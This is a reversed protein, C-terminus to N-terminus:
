LVDRPPIGTFILEPTGIPFSLCLSNRQKGLAALLCTARAADPRLVRGPGGLERWGQAPARMEGAQTTLARTPGAIPIADTGVPLAHTCLSLFGSQSHFHRGRRALADEGPLEWPRCPWVPVQGTGSSLKLSSQQPIPDGSGGAIDRRTDAVRVGYEGMASSKTM